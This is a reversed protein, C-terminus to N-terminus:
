TILTFRLNLNYQKLIDELSSTPYSAVYMKSHSQIVIITKHSCSYIKKILIQPLPTTFLVNIFRSSISTYSEKYLYVSFVNSIKLSLKIIVFCNQLPSWIVRGSAYFLFEKVPLIAPINLFTSSPNIDM